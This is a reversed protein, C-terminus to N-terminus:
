PVAHDPRRQLNQGLIIDMAENWPFRGPLLRPAQEAPRAVHILHISAFGPFPAELRLSERRFDEHNGEVLVAQHAFNGPHHFGDASAASTSPSLPSITRALTMRIAKAVAPQEYKGFRDSGVCCPVEEDVERPISVRHM